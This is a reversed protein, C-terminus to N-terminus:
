KYLCLFLAEYTIESEYVKSEKNYWFLHLKDFSFLPSVREIKM